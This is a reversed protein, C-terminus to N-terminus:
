LSELLVQAVKEATKGNGYVPLRDGKPHWNAYLECIRREDSGVLKNWGSSVTEVWETEERLTLCRVGLWYAEKQIGGSDTLICDANEELILMDLYGVPEIVHINEPIDLKAQDSAHKTRPHLPLIIQIPLQGFANIIKRLNHTDDTNAARHITALAYTKPELNIRDLIRSKLRALELNHILADYMVDGVLHVGEVVGEKELNKVSVETPCFLYSSIHDCVIRNIEEPMSRNYARLGAEIHAVPIGQKAAVLAAALTSNTDGYVLACVPDSDGLVHDLSMMMKGTQEGHSGSGVGLNITPRRLDLEDFFVESMDVDYHQGTHILVVKFKGSLARLIPAAKIFQPRAGVISAIIRKM